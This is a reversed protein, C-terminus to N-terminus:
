AAVLPPQQRERDAARLSFYLLTGFLASLSLRFAASVARLSIFLVGPHLLGIALDVPTFAVTWALWGVLLTGATSWWRGRVFRVSRTVADFPSARELVAIQAAFYGAVLMWVGPVVLLVFGVGTMISYWLVAGVAAPFRPAASRLAETVGPVRGEGMTRVVAAHLATVLVPMAFTAAVVALGGGLSGREVASGNTLGGRWVGDVLITVPAVVLLTLSLFLGSHRGFLALTTRLLQGPGRPADLDLPPEARM